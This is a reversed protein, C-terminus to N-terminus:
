NRGVPLWMEGYYNGDTQGMIVAANPVGVYSVESAEGLAQGFTTNTLIESLEQASTATGKVM